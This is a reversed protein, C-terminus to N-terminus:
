HGGGRAMPFVHLLAPWLADLSEQAGKTSGPLTVILTDDAMGAVGRSLAARPTRAFGHM